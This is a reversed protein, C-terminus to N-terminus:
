HENMQEFDLVGRFNLKREGRSPHGEWCFSAPDEQLGVMKTQPSGVATIGTRLQNPGGWNILWFCRGNPLSGVVRSTEVIVM